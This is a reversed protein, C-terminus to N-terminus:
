SSKAALRFRRLEHEGVVILTAQADPAHPAAVHLHAITGELRRQVM